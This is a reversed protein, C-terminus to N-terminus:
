KWNWPICMKGDSLLSYYHTIWLRSHQFSSSLKESQDLMRQCCAAMQSPTVNDDKGLASLKFTELCQSILAKEKELDAVYRDM